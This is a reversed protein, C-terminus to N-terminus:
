RRNWRGSKSYAGITLDPTKSNEHKESPSLLEKKSRNGGRKRTPSEFIRINNYFVTNKVRSKIGYMCYM